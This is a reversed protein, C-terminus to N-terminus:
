NDGVVGATDFHIFDHMDSEADQLADIISQASYGQETIYHDIMKELADRFTPIM